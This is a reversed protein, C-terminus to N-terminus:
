GATPLELEVPGLRPNRVTVNVATPAREFAELKEMTEAGM